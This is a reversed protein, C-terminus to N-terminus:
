GAAGCAEVSAPRRADAAVAAGLTRIARHLRSRYAGERMGAAASADASSLDLYYRLAIVTREETTLHRLARGVEDRNALDDLGDGIPLEHEPALPVERRRRGLRRGEDRSANVVLRRVWARFRDARRLRPLDRWARLLAEQLADEAHARDGLILGALGHLREIEPTVLASFAAHDGKKAQEVLDRNFRYDARM